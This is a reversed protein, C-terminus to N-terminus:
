DRESIKDQGVLKSKVEIYIIRVRKRTKISISCCLKLFLGLVVSELSFNGVLFVACHTLSSRCWLMDDLCNLPRPVELASGVLEWFPLFFFPM